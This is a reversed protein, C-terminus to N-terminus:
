CDASTNPKRDTVNDSINIAVTHAVVHDAFVYAVCYASTYAVDNACCRTINDPSGDSFRNAVDNTGVNPINNPDLDALRFSQHDPPQNPSDVTDNHSSGVTHADSDGHTCVHSIYVSCCYPICNSGLHLCQLACPVVHSSVVVHLGPKRNDIQVV